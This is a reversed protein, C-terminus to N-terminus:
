ASFAKELRALVGDEAPSTKRGVGLFGGAAEAVKRARGLLDSKLERRAGESLTPSIARIYDTWTALLQPPPRTALWGELLQRGASQRDVGAEAAAALAADREKDDMSGDAWAVLVLPVLSLAAITAGDVGLAVLRDLVADDAIGSAASLAEKKSKAAEADRLRRLLAEDQKAFFAEELAHKRDGLFEKSM